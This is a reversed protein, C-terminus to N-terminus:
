GNVRGVIGYEKLVWKRNERTVEAVEVGPSDRLM